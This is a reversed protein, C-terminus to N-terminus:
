GCAPRAPPPPATLACRRRRAARSRPPASAARAALRRSSSRRRSRPVPPRPRLSRPSTTSSRARGRARGASTRRASRRCPRRAPGRAAPWPPSRRRCGALVVAARQVEDDDREQDAGEDDPHGAVRLGVEDVPDALARERVQARLDEAVQLLHRDAEVLAPGAPTSIERIVLSTSASLESTVSVTM